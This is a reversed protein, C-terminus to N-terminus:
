RQHSLVLSFVVGLMVVIAVALSLMAAIFWSARQRTRETPQTIGFTNIFAATLTDLLRM